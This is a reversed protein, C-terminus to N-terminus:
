RRPSAGAPAATPSRPWTSTRRRRLLPPTAGGFRLVVGAEAGVMRVAADVVVHLAQGVDRARSLTISTDHLLSLDRLRRHLEDYAQAALIALAAARGFTRGLRLHDETFSARGLKTARIVGLLREEGELPVVIASRPVSRDSVTADALPDAGVDPVLVAERREAARGTVGHGLRVEKGRVREEYDTPRAAPDSRTAVLEFSETEPHWLRLSTSTATTLAQFRDVVAQLTSALDLKTAEGLVDNIAQLEAVRQDVDVSRPPAGSGKM